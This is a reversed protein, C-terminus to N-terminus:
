RMKQGSGRGGPAGSRGGGAEPVGLRLGSPREAMRAWLQSASRRTKRGGSQLDVHPVDLVEVWPGRLRDGGFPALAFFCVGGGLSNPDTGKSERHKLPGSAKRIEGHKGM